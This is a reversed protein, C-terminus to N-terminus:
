KRSVPQRILFGLGPGKAEAVTMYYERSPGILEYGSNLLGELFPGYTRHFDDPLGSHRTEAVETEDLEKVRVEGEPRFSGSVPICAESRLEAEPTELPNDYFLCFPYGSQEVGKADIWAKLSKMAEGVGAYPGRLELYAVTVKPSTTMRTEAAM